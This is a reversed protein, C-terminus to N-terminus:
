TLCAYMVLSHKGPKVTRGLRYLVIRENDHIKKLCIFLSFPMFAIMLTYFLCIIAYYAFKDLGSLPRTDITIFVFFKFDVSYVSCEKSFVYEYLHKTKPFSNLFVLPSM